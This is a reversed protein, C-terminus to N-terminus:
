LAAHYKFHSIPHNSTIQYRLHSNTYSSAIHRTNVTVVPLLTIGSAHESTVALFTIHSTYLQIDLRHSIELAFPTMNFLIYSSATMKICTSYFVGPPCFWDHVGQRCTYCQTVIYQHITLFQKFCKFKAKWINSFYNKMLIIAWIM